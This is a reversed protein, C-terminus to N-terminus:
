GFFDSLSGLDDNNRSRRKRVSSKIKRKPRINKRIRRSNQVEPRTIEDLFRLTKKGGTILGRRLNKKFATTGPNKLERLEKELSERKIKEAKIKRLASVEKGLSRISKQSTNIKYKKRKLGM